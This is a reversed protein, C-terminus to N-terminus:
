RKILKRILKSVFRNPKQGTVWGRFSLINKMKKGNSYLPSTNETVFIDPIFDLPEDDLAVYDGDLNVIRKQEKFQTATIDVIKDDIEVWCHTTFKNFTGIKLEPSYGADKLEQYLVYSGIACMCGLNPDDHFDYPMSDDSMAFKHCARRVKKAIDLVKDM